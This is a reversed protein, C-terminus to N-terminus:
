SGEIIGQQRNGRPSGMWVIVRVVMGMSNNTRLCVKRKGPEAGKSM